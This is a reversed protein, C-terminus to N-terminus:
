WIKWVIGPMYDYSLDFNKLVFRPPPSMKNMCLLGIWVYKSLMILCYLIFNRSRESDGLVKMVGVSMMVSTLTQVKAKKLWCIMILETLPM